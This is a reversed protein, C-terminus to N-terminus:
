QTQCTMLWLRGPRWTFDGPVTDSVAGNWVQPSTQVFRSYSCLWCLGTEELLIKGMWKRWPNWINKIFLEFGHVLGVLKLHIVNCVQNLAFFHMFFHCFSFSLDRSASCILNRYCKICCLNMNKSSFLLEREYIYM